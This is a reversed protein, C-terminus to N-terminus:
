SKLVLMYDNCIILKMQFGTTKLQIECKLYRMVFEEKMNLDIKIM